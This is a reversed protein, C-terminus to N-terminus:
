SLSWVMAGTFLGVISTKLPTAGLSENNGASAGVTGVSCDKSTNVEFVGTGGDPKVIWTFKNKSPCLIEIDKGISDTPGSERFTIFNTNGSGDTLQTIMTDTYDNVIDTRPLAITGYSDKVSGSLASSFQVIDSQITDGDTGYVIWLDKGGPCDVEFKFKQKSSDFSISFTPGTDTTKYDSKAQAFSTLLLLSTVISKM